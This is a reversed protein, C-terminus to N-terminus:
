TLFLPKSLLHCMKLGLLNIEIYKQKIPSENHNTTFGFNINSYQHTIFPQLDDYIQFIVIFRKIYNMMSLNLEILLM